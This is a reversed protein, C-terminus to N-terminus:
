KEIALMQLFSSDSQLTGGTTKARMEVTHTGAAVAIAANVSVPVSSSAVPYSAQSFISQDSNDLFVGYTNTFGQAAVPTGLNKSSTYFNIWLLCDEPCNINVYMGIPTYSTATTTFLSGQTSATTIISKNSTPTVTQASQTSVYARLDALTESQDKVGKELWKIRSKLEGTVDTDSSIPQSSKKNLFQNLNTPLVPKYFVILFVLLASLFGGIIVLLIFESRM